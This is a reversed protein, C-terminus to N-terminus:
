GHNSYSLFYVITTKIMNEDISRIANLVVLPSVMFFFTLNTLILLYTIQQKKFKRKRSLSNDHFTLMRNVTLM